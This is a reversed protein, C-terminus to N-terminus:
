VEDPFSEGFRSAYEAKLEDIRSNTTQIYKKYEVINKLHNNVLRIVENKEAILTDGIKKTQMEERNSTIYIVRGADGYTGSRLTPDVAHMARAFDSWSRHTRNVNWRIKTRDYHNAYPSLYLKVEGYEYNFSMAYEGSSLNMMATLVERVPHYTAMLIQTSYQNKRGVKLADHISVGVFGLKNLTEEVAKIIAGTEESPVDNLAINGIVMDGRTRPDITKSGSQTYYEYMQVGGPTMVPVNERKSQDFKVANQYRM